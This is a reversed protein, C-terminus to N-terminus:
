TRLRWFKAATGGLIAERDSDSHGSLFEIVLNMVRSYSGALTCVPWDSGIM